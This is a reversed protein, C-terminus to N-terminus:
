PAPMGPPASEVWALFGTLSAESMAFEVPGSGDLCGVIVAGSLLSFGETGQASRREVVQLERRGFIRKPRMAYSFVRYWELAEGSYRGIGLTWGKGVGGQGLRLSLDFSGGRRSLFRRRVALIALVLLGAVVLVAIGDLVPVVNVARM